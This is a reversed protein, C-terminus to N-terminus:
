THTEGLLFVRMAASMSLSWPMGWRETVFPVREQTVRLAEVIRWASRYIALVSPAYRHRLVDQAGDDHLAQAFYPRHLNLLTIEKAAMCSYRRVHTAKGAEAAEPLGCKSRLSHLVPFDRVARDLELIKAYQPVAAAFATARVTHLLKSYQWCWPHSSWERHGDTDVREEPEQPFEYNVWSLNMCPPRGFM